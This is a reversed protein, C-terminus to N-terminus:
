ADALIEGYVAAVSRLLGDLAFERTVKERGAQGMRHAAGPDSLVRAIAAKLGAFDGPDLLIGNVGDEVLESTGGVRTAVVPVGEAMAELLVLPMGEDFSPLVLVDMGRMLRRVDDRHGLFRVASAIGLTRAKRELVDLYAGSREHDEGIFWAELGPFRDVLGALADLLVAQGKTPCLRAVCGVVVGTKETPRGDGSGSPEVGNPVVVIREAPYGQAALGAATQGSVAIFRKPITATLTDIWRALRGSLRGPRFYNGIHVHNIVPVGAIWGALRWLVNGSVTVHTHILDPREDWLFRVLSVLVLPRSIRSVPHFFVRVGKPCTEVIPGSSPSSLLVEHGRALQDRILDLCVKQGGAM